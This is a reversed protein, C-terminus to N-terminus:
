FGIGDDVGGDYNATGSGGATPTCKMGGAVSLIDEQTMERALERVIPRVNKETQNM